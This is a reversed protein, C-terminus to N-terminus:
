LLVTFNLPLWAVALAHVAALMVTATGVPAVVPATTTFTPPTFLLPTLKVTVVTGFPQDCESTPVTPRAPLALKAFPVKVTAPAPVSTHPVASPICNTYWGRTPSAVIMARTTLREPPPPLESAPNITRSVSLAPAVSKKAANWGFVIYKDSRKLVPALVPYM